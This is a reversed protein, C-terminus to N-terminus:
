TSRLSLDGTLEVLVYGRNLFGAISMGFLTGAAAPISKVNSLFWGFLEWTHFFRITQRHM